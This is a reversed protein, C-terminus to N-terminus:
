YLGVALPIFAGAVAILAVLLAELPHLSAFLVAACAAVLLQVGIALAWRGPTMWSRTLLTHIANAQVEVATMEGRPTLLREGSETFTAGVLAIRGQISRRAHPRPDTALVALVDSSITLFSGAGGIYTIPRWESPTLKLPAPVPNALSLPSPWYLARAEYTRHGDATLPQGGAAATLLALALSPVPAGGAGAALPQFKRVVGGETSGDPLGLVALRAAPRASPARPPPEAVATVVPVQAAEAEQIAEFLPDAPSRVPGSSVLGIARGGSRAVGRVVRALYERPIQNKQPFRAMVNDDIAVVIVHPSPFSVYWWFLVGAASAHLPALVGTISGLTTLASAVAGILLGGV